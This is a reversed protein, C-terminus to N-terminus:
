RRAGLKDLVNSATQFRETAVRKEADTKFRDPHLASLVARPVGPLKLVRGADREVPTPPPEPPPPAAAQARRSLERAIHDREAIAQDRENAVRALIEAQRYPDIFVPPPPFPTYVPEVELRRPILHRLGRVQLFIYGFCYAEIALMAARTLYYKEATVYPRDAALEGSASFILAAIAVAAFLGLWNVPDDHAFAERLGSVFAWVGVATWFLAVVTAPSFHGHAIDAFVPMMDVGYMAQSWVCSAGIWTLLAAGGPFLNCPCIM